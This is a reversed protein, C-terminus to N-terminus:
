QRVQRRRVRDLIRAAASIATVTHLSEDVGTAAKSKLLALARDPSASLAGLTCVADLSLAGPEDLASEAITLLRRADEPRLKQPLMQGLFFGRARDFPCKSELLALISESVGEQFLLGYAFARFLERDFTRGLPLLEVLKLSSGKTRMESIASVRALSKPTVGQTHAPELLRWWEVLEEQWALPEGQIDGELAARLEYTALTMDAGFHYEEPMEAIFEIDNTNLRSTALPILVPFNALIESLYRMSEIARAAWSDTEISEDRDNFDRELDGVRAGASLFEPFSRFLM